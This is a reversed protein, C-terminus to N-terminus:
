FEGMAILSEVFRADTELRTPDGFHDHGNHIVTSLYKYLRILRSVVSEGLIGSKARLLNKPDRDAGAITAIKNRLRVCRVLYDDSRSLHSSCFRSDFKSAAAHHDRSPYSGIGSSFHASITTHRPYFM